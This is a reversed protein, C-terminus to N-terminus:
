ESSSVEVEAVQDAQPQAAGAGEEGAPTEPRPARAGIYRQESAALIQSVGPLPVCTVIFQFAFMGPWVHAMASSISTLFRAFRPREPLINEFPVPVPRVTRVEYGCDRLTKKLTSRTFLRKHTVDMIGRDAYAFRGFLLNARIAAFAINPTSIVFTPSRREYAVRQTKNRMEILFREPEALHEIVDLLLVADFGFPDVPLPDTDLDAKFFESVAGPLPENQDVGVVEVGEQRCERAVAGPGCGLDLVRGAGAERVVELARRHSSNLMETKDKYPSGGIERYRLSTFMGFQHMRYGVTAKLVNLGYRIGSFGAVHSIEDAYRTPIPFEVIRADVYAAQLLIETDFHFDNTNAEFPVRDLFATSYGRYGTHYESLGLSTIRNQISTLIRNGVLKYFPMGGARAGGPEAIRSGLVVDPRDARWTEIFRDLLEPAYQGDAHLLIVFDYGRDVALRYGLKQNGGYGQNVPNHLVTLNELDREAAWQALLEAGADASGDDLCVFDVEPDRLVSEPIREFTELVHKEAEYAVVLVLVRRGAQAEPTPTANAAVPRNM